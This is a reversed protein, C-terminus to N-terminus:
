GFMLSSIVRIRRSFPLPPLVELKNYSALMVRIGFDSLLLMLSSCM